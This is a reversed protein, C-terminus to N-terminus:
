VIVYHNALSLYSDMNDHEFSSTVKHQQIEYGTIRKGLYKTESEGISFAVEGDWFYRYFHLKNDIEVFLAFLTFGM